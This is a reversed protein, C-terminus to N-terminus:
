QWKLTLEYSVDWLAASKNKDYTVESTPVVGLVNNYYTLGQVDDALVCYLTTQAGQQQTILLKRKIWKIVRCCCVRYNGVTLGDRHVASSVSLIGVPCFVSMVDGKSTFM